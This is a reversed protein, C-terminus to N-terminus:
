LKDEPIEQVTKLKDTIFQKIALNETKDAYNKAIEILRSKSQRLEQILGMCFLHSCRGETSLNVLTAITTHIRDLLVFINRGGKHEVGLQEIELLQLSIKESTESLSILWDGRVFLDDCFDRSKSKISFVVGFLAIIIVSSLYFKRV